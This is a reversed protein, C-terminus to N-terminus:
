WATACWWPPHVPVPRPPQADRGTVGRRGRLSTAGAVRHIRSQSRIITSLYAAVPQIGTLLRQGCLGRRPPGVRDNRAVIVLAPQRTVGLVPVENPQFRRDGGDLLAQGSGSHVHQRHAVPFGASLGLRHLAIGSLGFAILLLPPHLMQTTLQGAYLGVAGSAPDMHDLATFPQGRRAVVEVGGPEGDILPPVM